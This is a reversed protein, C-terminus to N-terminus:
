YIRHKAYAFEFDVKSITETNDPLSKSHSRYNYHIVKKQPNDIM